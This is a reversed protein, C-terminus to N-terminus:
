VRFQVVLVTPAILSAAALLLLRVRGVDTAPASVPDTLPVMSPHLAALGISAYLPIRGFAGLFELDGRLQVLNYGIDAVLLALVGASLLGISVLRRGATTHLRFLWALCLLDGVPFAVALWSGPTGLDMTRVHP